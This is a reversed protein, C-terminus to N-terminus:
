IRGGVVLVGEPGGLYYDEAIVLAFCFAVIEFGQVLGFGGLDHVLDCSAHFRIM